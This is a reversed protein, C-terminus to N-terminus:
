RTVEKNGYGFLVVKIIANTMDKDVHNNKIQIEIKNNIIDLRDTTFGYPNVTDIERYVSYRSIYDALYWEYKVEARNSADFLGNNFNCTVAFAEVNGSFTLAIRRTTGHAVEIGEFTEYEVYDGQNVFLGEEVNSGTLQTDIPNDLRTLILDNTAKNDAIGQKILALEEKVDIDKVNQTEKQNTIEVKNTIKNEIAELKSEVSANKVNQVPPFNSVNIEEIPTTKNAKISANLNELSQKIDFPDGTLDTIKVHQAGDSGEVVQMDNIGKADKQQPLPKGDIGLLLNLNVDM